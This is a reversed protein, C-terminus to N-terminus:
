RMDILWWLGVATQVRGGTDGSCETMFAWKDAFKLADKPMEIGLVFTKTEGHKIMEIEPVDFWSLISAPANEYDKAVDYDSTNVDLKIDLCPYIDRGSKNEVLFVVEARAGSHFNRVNIRSASESIGNETNTIVVVNDHEAVISEVPMSEVPESTQSEVTESCSALILCSLIIVMCLYKM